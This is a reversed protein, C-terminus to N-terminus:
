GCRGAKVVAMQPNNIFTHIAREAQNPREEANKKFSNTDNRGLHPRQGLRVDQRCGANPEQRINDALRHVNAQKRGFSSKV